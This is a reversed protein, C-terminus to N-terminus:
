RQFRQLSALLSLADDSLPVRHARGAKMRDAPISWMAADMDIESWRAGRSEGSRCACLITFELCRASMGQIARLRKIFDYM